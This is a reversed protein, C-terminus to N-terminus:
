LDERHVALEKGGPSGRLPPMAFVKLIGVLDFIGKWDELWPYLVGM